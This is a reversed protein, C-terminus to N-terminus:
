DSLYSYLASVTYLKSWHTLDMRLRAQFTKLSGNKRRKWIVTRPPSTSYITSFSVTKQQTSIHQQQGFICLLTVNGLCDHGYPARTSAFHQSAAHQEQTSSIKSWLSEQGWHSPCCQCPSASAGPSALPLRTRRETQAKNASHKTIRFLFIFRYVCPPPNCHLPSASVPASCGSCGSICSKDKSNLPLPLSKISPCLPSLINPKNSSDAQTKKFALPAWLAKNFKSVAVFSKLM